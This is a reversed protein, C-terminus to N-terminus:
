SARRTLPPDLELNLTQDRDRGLALDLAKQKVVEPDFVFVGNGAAIRGLPPLDGSKAWRTITRASKHLVAAAQGTTLLDKVEPHQM